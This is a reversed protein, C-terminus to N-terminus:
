RRRKVLPRLKELLRTMTAQIRDAPIGLSGVLTEPSLLSSSISGTKGANMQLTMQLFALLTFEGEDLSAKKALKEVDKYKKILGELAPLFDLMANQVSEFDEKTDADEPPADDQRSRTPRSTLEIRIKSEDKWRGQKSEPAVRALWAGNGRIRDSILSCFSGAPILSPQQATAMLLFSWSSRLMPPSKFSFQPITRGQRRAIEIGLAQVDPHPFDRLVNEQLRQHIRAASELDPEPRMLLLHLGLIGLMPDYFKGRLLANLDKTHFGRWQNAVALRALEALRV